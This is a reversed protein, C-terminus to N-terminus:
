IQRNRDLFSLNKKSYINYDFKLHPTTGDMKRLWAIKDSKSEIAKFQSVIEDQTVLDEIIKTKRKSM